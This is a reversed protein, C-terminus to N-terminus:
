PPFRRVRASTPADIDLAKGDSALAVGASVSVRPPGDNGTTSVELGNVIGFLAPHLTHREFSQPPGFLSTEALWASLEATVIGPDHTNPDTWAPEATGPLSWSFDQRAPNALTGQATPVGAIPHSALSVEAIFVGPYRIEPM